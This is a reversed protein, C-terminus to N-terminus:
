FRVGVVKRTEGNKGPFDKFLANLMVPVIPAITGSNGVSVIDAQFVLRVNKSDVSARDAISLRMFRTYRVSSKPVYGTVGYTPTFTTTAQYAGTSDANGTTYAGSIGTQGFVPVNVTQVRGQDISYSFSVLFEAIGRDCEIWHDAVLHSRVDNQYKLYELNGDQGDLTVFAFSKGVTNAPLTHFATVTSSVPIVCGACLVVVCVALIQISTRM